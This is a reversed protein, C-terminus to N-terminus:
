GGITSIPDQYIVNAYDVNNTAFIEVTYENIAENLEFTFAYDGDNSVDYSDGYVLDNSDTLTLTLSYRSPNSVSLSYSLTWDVITYSVNSITPLDGLYDNSFLSTGGVVALTGATILTLSTLVKNARSNKAYDTLKDESYIEPANTEDSIDACIEKVSSPDSNSISIEPVKSPDWTTLDNLESAM